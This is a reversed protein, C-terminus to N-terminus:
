ESEKLSAQTEEVRRQAIIGEELLARERQAAQRALTARSNTQMLQLQLQGFEASVMRLLPAGQKVLQNQQVFLQVPLGALSSSIIQERNPPVIVQAPLRMVIPAGQGQIAAVEIGLSRMQKEAVAFRATREAASANASMAVALMVGARLLLDCKKM